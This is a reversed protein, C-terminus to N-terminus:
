ALFCVLTFIFLYLILHFVEYWTPLLNKKKRCNEKQKNKNKLDHRYVKPMKETGIKYMRTM